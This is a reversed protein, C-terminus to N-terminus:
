LIFRFINGKKKKLLSLFHHYMKTEATVGYEDIIESLILYIEQKIDDDLGNYLQQIHNDDTKEFIKVYFPAAFFSSNEFKNIITEIFNLKKDDILETVQDKSMNKLLIKYLFEITEHPIKENGAYEIILKKQKDISEPGLKKFFKIILDIYRELAYYGLEEECKEIIKLKPDQLFKLQEEDSLLPMIKILLTEVQAETEINEQNKIYNLAEVRIEEQFDEQFKNLLSSYGDLEDWNDTYKILVFLLKIGIFGLNAFDKENLSIKYEANTEDYFRLLTKGMNEIDFKEFYKTLEEKSILEFCNKIFLYLTIDLVEQNTGKLITNQYVDRWIHRNEKILLRIAHELEYYNLEDLDYKVQEFKEKLFETFIKLIAKVMESDLYKLFKVKNERSLGAYYSFDNDLFLNLILKNKEEGKTKKIIKNILDFSQPGLQTIFQIDNNEENSDMLLTKILGEFFEPSLKAILLQLNDDSLLPLFRSKEVSLYIKDAGLHSFLRDKLFLQLKSSGLKKLVSFISHLNRCEKKDERLIIIANKRFNSTRNFLLKEIELLSEKTFYDKSLIISIKIIDGSKLISFVKQKLIKQAIDDGKKIVQELLPFIMFINFNELSKPVSKFPNGYFWLYKLKKLDGISGPFTRLQNERVDLKELNNLSGISKPLESVKNQYIQLSKLQSLHVISEPLQELQNESFHLHELSTLNGIDVPISTLNINDLSLQKLNKLRGISDPLTRITNKPDTSFTSGLELVELNTLDGIWEPLSTLNNSYLCLTKLNTLYRMSNPLSKIKNNSLDLNELNVLDSICDPIRDIENFNLEIKKLQKLGCIWQPIETIKGYTLVHLYELGQLNQVDDPIKRMDRKYLYLGVIRNNEVIYKSSERYSRKKDKWTTYFLETRLENNIRIITDLDELFKKDPLLAKVEPEDLYNFYDKSRYLLFYDMDRATSRIFNKLMTKAGSIGLKILWELFPIGFHKAYYPSSLDSNIKNQFIQSNFLEDLDQSDLYKFYNQNSLYEFITKNGSLARKKIEDKFVRKAKPDGVDTLKKLLPFAINRHLLRTDYNNEYWVQLNSCHGWFETEPPILNPNPHYELTGNLKKSAEDISELEDFTSIRNVPIVLLLFKCQRFLQNKVYINTKNGEFKLTLYENVEFENEFPM